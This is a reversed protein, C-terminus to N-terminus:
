MEVAVSLATATTVISWGGTFASDASRSSSSSASITRSSESSSTRAITRLPAPSRANTAPASMESNGERRSAGGASPPEARPIWFSPARMSLARVGNTAAMWPNQRPPPSSSAIAHSMRTAESSECSPCGSILSPSMGPPPQVWRSGRSTPSPRASYRLRVPSGISPFVAYSQPSTSRTTGRSCSRSVATPIAFVIADLDGCETATSRSNALVVRSRESSSPRRRSASPERRQRPLSAPASPTAAKRAFRSGCNVPRYSPGVAYPTPVSHRKTGTGWGASPARRIGQSVTDSPTIASQPCYNEGGGSAGLIEDHLVDVLRAAAVPLGDDVDARTPDVEGVDEPPEAAIRLHGLQRGHEAGLDCTLEVAVADHAEDAPLAAPVGLPDRDVGAPQKRQRGARAEGLTSCERHREEGGPDRQRLQQPHPETRAHEDRRRGSGYAGRRDLEHPRQVTSRDRRDSALLLEVERARETGDLRHGVVPEALELRDFRDEVEDAALPERAREREQPWEARRDRDSVRAPEPLVHAGRPQDAPVDAHLAEVQAPQEAQVRLEDLLGRAVDQLEPFTGDHPRDDTVLKRELLRPLPVPQDLFSLRCSLHHQSRSM